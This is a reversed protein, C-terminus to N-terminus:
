QIIKNTLHFKHINLQTNTQTVNRMICMCYEFQVLQKIIAQNYIKKSVAMQCYILVLHSSTRYSHLNRLAQLIYTGILHISYHSLWPTQYQHTCFKLSHAMYYHACLQIHKNNTLMWIFKISHIKTPSFWLSNEWTLHPEHWISLNEYKEILIYFINHFLIVPQQLKCPFFPQKKFSETSIKM